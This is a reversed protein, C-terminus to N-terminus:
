HYLAIWIATEKWEEDGWDLHREIDVNNDGAEQIVMRITLMKIEISIVVEMGYALDFPTVKTPKENTMWYAWLINSLEDVWKEKAWKLRKKLSNLLTKNTAKM